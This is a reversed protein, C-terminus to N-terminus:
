LLYIEYIKLLGFQQIYKQSGKDRQTKSQKTFYAWCHTYVCLVCVEKQFQYVVFFKPAFKTRMVINVNKKM